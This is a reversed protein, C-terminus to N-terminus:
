SGLALSQWPAVGRCIAEALPCRGKRSTLIVHLWVEICLRLWHADVMGSLLYSISVRGCYLRLWHVDVMGYLIVRFWAGVYLVALRHVDRGKRLTLIIHLWAGFSRGNRLTHCPVVGKCIAGALPCRGKGLAIIM